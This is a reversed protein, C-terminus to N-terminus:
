RGSAITPCARFLASSLQPVFSAQSPTGMVKQVLEYGSVEEYRSPIRAKLGHLRRNATLALQNYTTATIRGRQAGNYERNTVTSINSAVSHGVVFAHFFPVGEIGGSSVLEDVYEAAQNMEKRGIESRGKKLEILLVDRMM